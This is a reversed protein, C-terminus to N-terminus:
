GTVEIPDGAVVYAGSSELIDLEESITGIESAIKFPALNQFFVLRDPARHIM